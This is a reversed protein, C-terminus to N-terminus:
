LGVCALTHANVRARAIAVVDGVALTKEVAQVRGEARDNVVAVGEIDGVHELSRRVVGDAQQLYRVAGTM